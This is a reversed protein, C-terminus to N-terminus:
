ILVSFHESILETPGNAVDNKDHGYVQEEIERRADVNPAMDTTQQSSQDKGQECSWAKFYLPNIRYQMQGICPLLAFDQGTDRRDDKYKTRQRHDSNEM